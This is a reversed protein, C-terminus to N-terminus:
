PRVVEVGGSGCLRNVIELLKVEHLPATQSKGSKIVPLGAGFVAIVWQKV